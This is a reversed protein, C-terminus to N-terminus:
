EMIEELADQVQQWRAPQGWADALDFVEGALAESIDDGAPSALWGFNAVHPANCSKVLEQHHENLTELLDEQYYEDDTHISISKM